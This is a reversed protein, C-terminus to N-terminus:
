MHCVWKSYKLEYKWAFINEQKLNTPNKGSVAITATSYSFQPFIVENTGAGLKVTSSLLISLQLLRCASKYLTSNSKHPHSHFIITSYPVCSPYLYSCRTFSKHSIHPLIYNKHYLISTFPTLWWFANFNWLVLIPFFKLSATFPKLFFNSQVIQVKWFSAIWKWLRQCKNMHNKPAALLHSWYQHFISNEFFM